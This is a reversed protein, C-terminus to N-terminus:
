ENCTFEPNFELPRKVQVPPALTSVRMAVVEIVVGLRVAVLKFEDEAVKVLRTAFM